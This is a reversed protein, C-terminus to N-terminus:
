SHGLVALPTKLAHSLNGAAHRIRGLRQAQHRSLREVAALLPRVEAPADVEFQVAEGRELRRCAEVAEDLPVLGRVLVRRQLVLLVLLALGLVTLAQARFAAIAADIAAVDEALAISVARGD